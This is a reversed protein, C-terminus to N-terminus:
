QGRLAEIQSALDAISSWSGGSTMITLVYPGSASYVIAVDNLVDNIFGVKDAVEVGSLGAPIGNRYVQNKMANILLDRSSQQTLLQGTQLQALFLALDAATTRAYGDSSSLNTNSCGILHAEESVTSWGIKEAMAEACANDSYVIM